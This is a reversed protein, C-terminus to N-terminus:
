GEKTAYSMGGFAQDTPVIEVISLDVHPPLTLVRAITDAVEAPSVANRDAYLKQQVVVPDGGMSELYIGTEVRGPALETVRVGSGVLELRLCQAMMAIAAKSANYVALDAYPHRAAVSSLLFVHGRKRAIMQGLTLRVTHMASGVNVGLMRDIDSAALEHFRRVATIIGANAVLVDVELGGVAAALAGTDTVDCVIPRCGTRAALAELAAADRALAWVELGLARLREVTAAGIGRSAGTVLATRYPGAESM